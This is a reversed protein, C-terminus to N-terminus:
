EGTVPGSITLTKAFELATPSGRKELEEKSYVEVPLAADEPTGKILSGTIVVREAAPAPSEAQPAAIKDVPAQSNATQALAPGVGALSVILAAGSIGRLMSKM